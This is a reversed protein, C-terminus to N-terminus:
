RRRAWRRVQCQINPISTTQKLSAMSRHRSGESPNWLPVQSTHLGVRLIFLREIILRIQRPSSRSAVLQLIVSCERKLSLVQALPQHYILRVNNNRRHFGKLKVELSALPWWPLIGHLLPASNLSCHTSSRLMTLYAEVRLEIIVIVREKGLGTSIISRSVIAAISNWHLTRILLLCHVM